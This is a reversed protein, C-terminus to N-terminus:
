NRELVTVIGKDANVEVLDGTKLVKSAIKTSIVCPKKFERASIAAHSLVGGEDTVIAMCQKILPLDKPHTTPAVLIFGEPPTNMADSSLYVKGRAVGGYASFGQISSVAGSDVTYFRQRVENVVDGTYIRDKAEGRVRLYFYGERRKRLEDVQLDRNNFLFSSMESTTLYRLLDGECGLEEELKTVTHMFVDEVRPYIVAVENRRTSIEKVDRETMKGKSERDGLYRWLCNFMGIVAMYKPYYETIAGLIKHADSRNTHSSLLTKSERIVKEAPLFILEPLKDYQREIFAETQEEVSQENFMSHFKGFSGIAGVAGYSIGIYTPLLDVYAIGICSMTFLPLDRQTAPRLRYSEIVKGIEKTKNSVMM